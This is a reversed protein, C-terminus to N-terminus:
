MGQLLLNSSLQLRAKNQKGQIFVCLTIRIMKRIQKLLRQWYRQAINQIGFSLIHKVLQKKIYVAQGVFPVPPIMM